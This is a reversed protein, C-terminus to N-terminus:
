YGKSKKKVRKPRKRLKKKLRRIKNKGKEFIDSLKMKKKRKPPNTIQQIMAENTSTSM